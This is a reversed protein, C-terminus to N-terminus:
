TLKAHTLIWRNPIEGNGAAKYDNYSCPIISHDAYNSKVSSYPVEMWWEETQSNKYFVLKHPNEKLSVIYKIYNPDKANFDKKRLYYGEIFYWIMAALVGATQGKTDEVPNFEYFGVSSMKPNLGAYWCLQCAEEGTLGFSHSDRNGPADTQRIAGIDFSMLDAHRVVPEAEELNEHLQGVRYAEFFLKEFVGLTEQDTLYTQYALHSYNFIINPKHVLIKHIHSKNFGFDDREQMDIEADVTLYTIPKGYDEYALFQGYDLDHTGGILIPVVNHQILTECVEKIRLYTDELNEGNRLNGLDAIKINGTGKKLNYLKKRVVDAAHAVGQNTITGREESLGVIALNAAKWEPFVESNIKLYHILSAPEFKGQMLSENVPDFFINLSM